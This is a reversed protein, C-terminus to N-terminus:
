RVIILAIGLYSFIQRQINFEEDYRDFGYQTKLYNVIM